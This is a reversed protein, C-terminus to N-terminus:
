EESPLHGFRERYRRCFYHVYNWGCLAAVEKVRYCHQRLLRRATNLRVENLYEIPTCNCGARFVKQIYNPSFHTAAAIERISLDPQYYHDNIYASIIESPSPPPQCSEKRVTLMLASLLSGTLIALHETESLDGRCYAELALTLDASNVGFHEPAMKRPLTLSFASSRLYYIMDASLRISVHAPHETKNVGPHIVGAPTLRLERLTGYDVNDGNESAFLLRLEFLEHFHLLGRGAPEPTKGSFVLRASFDPSTLVTRRMIELYEAEKEVSHWGGSSNDM